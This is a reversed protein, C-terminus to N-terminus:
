IKLSHIKHLRFMGACAPFVMTLSQTSTKLDSCGRARPSFRDFYLRAIPKRPVDGRVRPFRSLTSLPVTKSRFMGACAPFVRSPPTEAQTYSSCGRARPSFTSGGLAFHFLFPVNGRVRPFGWWGRELFRHDLFMGACAPFVLFVFISVLSQPSCGRARPSFQIYCTHLKLGFPVDGRVRPFRMRVGAPDALLLFMGACAPFVVRETLGAGPRGSCGRARPSFGHPVKGGQFCM